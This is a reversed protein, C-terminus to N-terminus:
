EKNMSLNYKISAQKFVVAAETFCLMKRHSKSGTQMPMRFYKQKFFHM